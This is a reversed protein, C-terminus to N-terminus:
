ILINELVGNIYESSTELSYHKTTIIAQDIVISKAIKNAYYEAYAVILIAKDIMPIRDWTWNNKLKSTIEKIIKPKNTCFYNIVKDQEKSLTHNEFVYKILSSSGINTWLASYIIKVLEVRKKWQPLQFENMNILNPLFM